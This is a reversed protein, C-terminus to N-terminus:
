EVSRRHRQGRGQGRLEHAPLLQIAQSRVRIRVREDKSAKGLVASTAPMQSGNDIVQLIMRPYSTLRLVSDLCADLAAGDRTAVIITVTPAPQPLKWRVRVTFPGSGPEASAQSSTRRLHEAVAALGARQAMPKAQAHSATSGPSRRWHYGIIPLHTIRGSGVLKSVRLLFDHDQAGDFESRLGGIEQFVSRRVAVLHGIYNYGALLDGDFSPKFHPEHRDAGSIIKDEDTYLLSCGEDLLTSAMHRFCDAAVVDDHDLFVLWPAQGLTAAMNTTAAIGGREKARILRVDADKALEALLAITAPSESCDDCILLKYQPYRQSRVSDVAARLMVASTNYVPLLVDIEPLTPPLEPPRTERRAAWREYTDSYQAPYTLNYPTLWGRARMLSSPYGAGEAQALHASSLLGRECGWSLRRRMRSRAFLPSVATLLLRRIGFVPGSLRLTWGASQELWVLRKSTRGVAVDLHFRQSDTNDAHALCAQGAGSDPEIEMMYWGRHPTRTWALAMGDADKSLVPMFKTQFAYRLWGIM